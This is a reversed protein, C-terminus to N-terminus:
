GRPEQCWLYGTESRGASPLAARSDARMHMTSHLFELRRDSVPGCAIYTSYGRDGGVPGLGDRGQRPSR